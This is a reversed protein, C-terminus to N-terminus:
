RGHSPRASYTKHAQVSDDASAKRSTCWFFSGPRTTNKLKLDRGIAAVTDVADKSATYGSIMMDFNALNSQKLGDYLEKIEEAPVKRGKFQKYGTHNGIKMSNPCVLELSEM